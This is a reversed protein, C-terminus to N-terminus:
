VHARGIKTDESYVYSNPSFRGSTDVVSISACATGPSSTVYVPFGQTFGAGGYVVNAQNLVGSFVRSVNAKAPTLPDGGIITIPDGVNYSSGGDTLEIRILESYPELVMNIVTEDEALVTSKYNENGFFTKFISKQNLEYEFIDTEYNRYSTSTEIIARAGSNAGEIKRNNLLSYDFDEYYVKINSTAQTQSPFVIKNRERDLSYEGTTSTKFEHISDTTISQQGTGIYFRTGDPRITLLNHFTFGIDPTIYSDFSYSQVNWAESLNFQYVTASTGSTIFIKTGDSKFAMAQPNLLTPTGVPRMLNTSVSRLYTATNVQWATSLQFEDVTDNIIQLVFMRTGDSKFKVDIPNITTVTDATVGALIRGQLPDYYANEVPLATAINWSESLNYELVRNFGGTAWVFYVKTGDPKFDIGCPVTINRIINGPEIIQLPNSVKTTASFTNLNWAESFSVQTIRNSGDGMIYLQLGDSKFYIGRSLTDINLGNTTSNLNFFKDTKELDSLTWSDGVSSNRLVDDVYVTLRQKLPSTSTDVWKNQSSNWEYTEGFIVYDQGDFPDQPFNIKPVAILYEKQGGSHISYINKTTRIVKPVKFNGGSAILVDNKPTLIEIEEDFLTRFFYKFSNENGKSKYLEAANKILVYKSADTNKPFLNLYTNFFENQFDTLSEDVDKINILEKARSYLDNRSRIVIIDGAEAPTTLVIKTGSITNVEVSPSLKIGNKYVDIAEPSYPNTTTFSTQGATAIFSQLTIKNELFEYYAELFRVFLPYDEQVFDPFQSNVLLSIKNNPTIM